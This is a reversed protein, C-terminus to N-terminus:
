NPHNVVTMQCGFAGLFSGDAAFSLLSILSTPAVVCLSTYLPISICIIGPKAQYLKIVNWIKFEKMM